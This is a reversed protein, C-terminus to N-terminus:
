QQERELEHIYNILELALEFKGFPAILYYGGAAAFTADIFERAIALGERVGAEKDLGKMRTRIADPITIGPVENHLYEANRESVLPMVGALLPIGCGYTQDLAEFFLAPDYFPQTQCFCAGNAVKKRLREAQLSMNKTNPNFAAGITFGTSRGIPNGIANVGRNMDSLLKILSFSNLDFVSKAEAHDGMNAPDGTVALISRIGLLSAGMLDSQMGILNRDRGTVHVIVEIGVQQQIISGLAINGMRPRALPNEALNIADAGALKLRRSGAIIRDCDLGKPPDLEVTIIKRQGWADLFSPAGAQKQEAPESISIVSPRTRQAPKRGALTRAIAAIHEPTTGCCGGILCAGAAYMQEAMAALYDPTARYIYRGDHYEPFGSNAYAAIPKDTLASLRTVVKLLELPGAGCNAGLISAQAQDMANCFQEVTTGDGSRGGELFAMSACVPLGTERGADAAAMLQSLSSFTELLLLDVGGEALAQCQVHFIDKMEEAGPEHEDGKLRVLPGISGAVLVNQGREAAQRAIRVGAANIEAVKHGLGIASLKTFNAGFTNTEIVQSGAAVYDNALELVLSPRVLNLHEFNSDLSVGKAYLMTGVAGDGTLVEDRLRELINM